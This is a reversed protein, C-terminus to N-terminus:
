RTRLGVYGSALLERWFGRLHGNTSLNPLPLMCLAITVGNIMCVM